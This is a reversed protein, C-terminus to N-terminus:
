FPCGTSFEWKRNSQTLIKNENAEGKKTSSIQFVDYIKHRYIVFIFSM